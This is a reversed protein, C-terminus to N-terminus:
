HDWSDREDRLENEVLLWEEASRKVPKLSQIYDWIGMNLTPERTDNSKEPFLVILEVESNTPLEPAAVEIRGGVMVSTKIKLSTQM